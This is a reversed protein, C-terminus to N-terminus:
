EVKSSALKPLAGYALPHDGETEGDRRERM